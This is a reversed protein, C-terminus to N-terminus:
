ATGQGGVGDADERGVVVRLEPGGGIGGRRDDATDVHDVRRVGADLDFVAGLGAGGARYLQRHLVVSRHAARRPWADSDEPGVGAGGDLVVVRRDGAVLDADEHVAARRADGAVFDLPFLAA